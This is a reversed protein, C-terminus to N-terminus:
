VSACYEKNALCTQRNKKWKYHHRNKFTWEIYNTSKYADYDLANLMKIALQEAQEGKTGKPLEKNYKLYLFGFLLLTPLTLFIIIGGCIKLIKKVKM